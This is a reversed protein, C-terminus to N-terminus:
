KDSLDLRKMLDRAAKLGHVYAKLLAVDRYPLELKIDEINTGKALLHLVREKQEVERNIPTARYLKRIPRRKM